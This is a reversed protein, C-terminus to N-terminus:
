ERKEKCKRAKKYKNSTAKGKEQKKGNSFVTSSKTLPRLRRHGKAMPPKRMCVIPYLFVKTGRRQCTAAARDAATVVALGMPSAGGRM